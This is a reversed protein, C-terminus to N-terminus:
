KVKRKKNIPVASCAEGFMLNSVIPTLERAFDTLFEQDDFTSCGKVIIKQDRHQEYNYVSRIARWKAELSSKEDLVVVKIDQSTFHSLVLMFAWKPLIVLASCFLALCEHDELDIVTESLNKRFVKEVLFPSEGFLKSIDFYKIPYKQILQFPDIQILGSNEVKNEIM